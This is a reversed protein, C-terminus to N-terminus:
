NRVSNSEALNDKTGGSSDVVEFDKNTNIQSKNQNSVLSNGYAFHRGSDQTIKKLLAM